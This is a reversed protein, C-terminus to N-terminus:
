RMDVFKLDPGGGITISAEPLLTDLSEFSLDTGPDLVVIRVATNVGTQSSNYWESNNRVDQELTRRAADSGVVYVLLQDPRSTAIVGQPAVPVSIPRDALTTDWVGYGFDASDQQVLAGPRGQEGTTSTGRLEGAGVVAGVALAVGAIAAIYRMKFRKLNNAQTASITFNM